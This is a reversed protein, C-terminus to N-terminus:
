KKQDFRVSLVNVKASFFLSVQKKGEEVVQFVEANKSIGLDVSKVVEQSYSCFSIVSIVLALIKKM